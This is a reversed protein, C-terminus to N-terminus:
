RLEKRFLSIILMAFLYGGKLSFPIAGVVRQRQGLVFELRESGSALDEVESGSGEEM